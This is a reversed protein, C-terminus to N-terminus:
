EANSVITHATHRELTRSQSLRLLLGGNNYVTQLMWRGRLESRVSGDYFWARLEIGADSVLDDNAMGLLALVLCQHPM